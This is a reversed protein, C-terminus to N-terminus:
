FADKIVRIGLVGDYTVAKMFKSLKDEDFKNLKIPKFSGKLKSTVINEVNVQYPKHKLTKQKTKQKIIKNVTGKTKNLKITEFTDNSITINLNRKKKATKINSIVKKRPVFHTSGKLIGRPYTFSNDSTKEVPTEKKKMKIISNYQLPIKSVKRTKKAIKKVLGIIKDSKGNKNVLLQRQKRTKGKKLNKASISVLKLSPNSTM